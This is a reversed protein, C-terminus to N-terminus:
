GLFEREMFWEVRDKNRELAAMLKQGAIIKDWESKKMSECWKMCFEAGIWIENKDEKDKIVPYKKLADEREIVWGHITESVNPCLELLNDFFAKSVGAVISFKQFMTSPTKTKAPFKLNM